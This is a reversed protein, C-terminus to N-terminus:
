SPFSVAVAVAFTFIDVNPMPGILMAPRTLVESSTVSVICRVARSGDFNVIGPEIAAGADAGRAFFLGENARTIMGASSAFQADHWRAPWTPAACQVSAVAASAALIESPMPETTSAPYMGGHGADGCPTASRFEFRRSWDVISAITWHDWAPPGSSTGSVVFISGRPPGGTGAGRRSM